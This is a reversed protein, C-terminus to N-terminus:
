RKLKLAYPTLVTAAATGLSRVAVGLVGVWFATDFEVAASLELGVAVAATALVALASHLAERKWYTM